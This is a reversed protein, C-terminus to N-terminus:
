ATPSAGARAGDARVNVARLADAETAVEFAGRVDAPIRSPVGTAYNVFVWLTEARAVITADSARHFLYRRPSSSREFSDVWTLVSLADGAFAPRLYEVEHRRVFWGAGLAVYRELTWGQAASHETAIEQMWRIYELNNVHGLVDIAESPVTLTRVYIKPM